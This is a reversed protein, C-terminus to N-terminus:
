ACNEDSVCASYMMRQTDRVSDRASHMTYMTACCAPPPQDPLPPMVEVVLQSLASAFSIVNANIIESNEAASKIWLGETANCSAVWQHQAAAAKALM